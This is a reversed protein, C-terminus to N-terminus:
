ERVYISSVTSDLHNIIQLLTDYQKDLKPFQEYPISYDWLIRMTRISAPIGIVVHNETVDMEYIHGAQKAIEMLQSKYREKEDDKVKASYTCSSKPAEEFISCSDIMIPANCEALVKTLKKYVKPLVTHDIAWMDSRGLELVFSHYINFTVYCSRAVIRERWYFPGGRKISEVKKQLWRPLSMAIKVLEDDENIVEVVDLPILTNILLNSKNDKNSMQNNM